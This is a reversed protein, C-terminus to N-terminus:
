FCWSQDRYRQYVNSASRCNYSDVYWTRKAVQFASLRTVIVVYIVAVVSTHRAVADDHQNGTIFSLPRAESECLRGKHRQEFVILVRM